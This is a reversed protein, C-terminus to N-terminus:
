RKEFVVIVSIGDRESFTRGDGLADILYLGRGREEDVASCFSEAPPCFNNESKVSIRIEGGAVVARMRARGGGHVLANSLLENAILRSDFVKEEPVNERFLAECMRHLASRLANFDDIEYDM